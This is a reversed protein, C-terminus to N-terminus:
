GFLLRERHEDTIAARIIKRKTPRKEKDKELVNMCFRKIVSMNPPGFGSHLQYKDDGFIVDLQWHLKNEVGTLTV